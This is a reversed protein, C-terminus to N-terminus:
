CSKANGARSNYAICDVGHIVWGNVDSSIYELFTRAISCYDDPPNITLCDRKGRPVNTKQIHDTYEGKILLIGSLGSLLRVV